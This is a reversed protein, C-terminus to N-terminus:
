DGALWDLAAARNDYVRFQNGRNTELVMAGFRGQFAQEAPIVAASKIHYNSFKLLVEGALRTQLEFFEAPLSGAHLLLRRARNEGCAAVLDLRGSAQSSLLLSCSM